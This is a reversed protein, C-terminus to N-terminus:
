IVNLYAYMVIVLVRFLRSCMAGSRSEGEHLSPVGISGIGYSCGMAEAPRVDLAEMVERLLIRRTDALESHASANLRRLAPREEAESGISKGDKSQAVPQVESEGGGQRRSSTSQADLRARAAQLREKRARLSARRRQVEQQDASLLTVSLM